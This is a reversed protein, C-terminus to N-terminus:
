QRVLIRARGGLRQHRADCSLARSAPDDGSPIQARVGLATGHSADGSFLQAARPRWIIKDTLLRRGTTDRVDNSSCAADLADLVVRNDSGRSGRRNLTARLYDYGLCVTPCPTRHRSAPSASHKSCSLYNQTLGLWAEWGAGVVARDAC